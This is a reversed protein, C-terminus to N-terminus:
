KMSNKLNGLYTGDLLYINSKKLDILGSSLVPGILEQRKIKNIPVGGLMKNFIPLIILNLEGVKKLDFKKKVKERDLNGRVWVQEISRFGFKDVFELAPHTHGMLLYDCSFLKKSPWAHGHFFGYKGIKIGRSSVIKVGQPIIGELRDDHNGKVLVVKLHKSLEQLFLPIEIDERISSGPVKHKIDGLLIIKKAKTMKMLKEITNIFKKRQSEIYIGSKYLEYEIGLHLEAVVLSKVEPIFAAPYNTLFRIAM